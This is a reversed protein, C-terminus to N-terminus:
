LCLFVSALTHAQHPRYSTIFELLIVSPIVVYIVNFGANFVFACVHRVVVPSSQNREYFRGFGDNTVLVVSHLGDKGM